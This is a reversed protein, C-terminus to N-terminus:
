LIGYAIRIASSAKCGLMPFSEKKAENPKAILGRKSRLHGATTVSRFDDRLEKDNLILPLTPLLLPRQTSLLRSVRRNRSDRVATFKARHLPIGRLKLQRILSALTAFNASAGSKPDPPAIRLPELGRGPVKRNRIPSHPNRFSLASRLNRLPRIATSPPSQV